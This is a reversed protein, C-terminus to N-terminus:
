VKDDAKEVMQVEVGENKEAARINNNGICKYTRFKRAPLKALFMENIEELTRGKLEPLFFWVWAAAIIASPFWIYGYRPGWNLSEPNIFYPATFTTLWGGFFSVAAALGFTYSRLRQSPIEGGALWAYAAILGSYSMVYLASLAVLVKGTTSTGPNKDYVVATILQLVGCLILGTILLVRRRGWRVVIFSSLIIAVMGLAGIVNSMAFPDEVNAMALFYALYAIIFMSGSAAQIMVACVSLITRRRDVPNSFMDLIGASGTTEREREIAARIEEAEANSDHDVPRIRELAKVGDKYRGQLILWRPSEPIFFMVIGVIVPVVYVISLPILFASKDPRKATAWDIIGGIVAGFSTFFQFVTLFLGRYKAPSTEHIYLQSFTMFYGNALGILFRGTYLAGVNTTAMMLINAICCLVCALWLCHRRGFKTASVGATGSSIFAGLTMLSTILQQRVTSINWGIPATHDQYGYVQLFPVMAQLGGILTFDIGYQFPCLLMIGCAFFVKSHAHWGDNRPAPAM